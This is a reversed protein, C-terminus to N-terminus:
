NWPSHPNHCEICKADTNHENLDVQKIKSTAAAVGKGHCKGCDKRETPKFPKSSAPNEMHKEASTHCRQCDLVKHVGGSKLKNIDGHCTICAASGGQTAAVGTKSTDANAVAHPRMGPSHANHCEVCKKNINHKALDIQRFNVPRSANKSHCIGCDNRESPIFLKNAKPDTIHKYGPGHCTECNIKAHIGSSKVTDINGHCKICVAAGTFKMEHNANDEISKARYHGLDGFSDPVLLHRVFIFLGVFVIFAISLRIIQKPM